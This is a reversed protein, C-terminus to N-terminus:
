STQQDLGPFSKIGIWELIGFDTVILAAGIILWLGSTSLPVTLALVLSGVVWLIDMLTFYKLESLRLQPRRASIAIHAGFLFVGIGVPILFAPESLGFIRSLYDNFIVILLGSVTSFLANAFLVRRFMTPSIM